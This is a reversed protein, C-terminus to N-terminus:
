RLEFSVENYGKYFVNAVEDRECITHYIRFFFSNDFEQYRLLPVTYFQSKNTIVKIEKNKDGFTFLGETAGLCGRATVIYNVPMDLKVEKGKLYFIEEEKGGNHTKYFLTEREFSEPILTIIGLRISMPYLNKFYLKYVVKLTESFLYEKFISIFPLNIPERHSVKFFGNEFSCLVKVRSSLDTIQEGNQTAILTHFSFFDAGYSIDDYYGHEITGILPKQSKSKFVLERLALGKNKVLIAKHYPTEVIFYRGRHFHKVSFSVTNERSHEEKKSATNQRSTLLSYGMLNRFLLYKEDTTNTRFDSGWLFCLNKWLEKNKDKKIKEYLMYCQTNMKASDRGTVAWRTVNYKDQKKTRIPYGPTSISIVYPDVKLKLIESPLSFTVPFSDGIVRLIDKLRKFDSGGKTFELSGPVYDFIEADGIYLPLSFPSMSIKKKLFSIYDGKDIDGWVFRQFKQTMYTDAWLIKLGENKAVEWLKLNKKWNNDKIANVWDFIFAEFGFEKLIEVAGISYVMENLLFVKPVKRFIEKFIDIGIEVNKKNVEYPILPFIAQTYSSAVLEVKGERELNKIDEIFKLSIGAIKELTWGNFELGIKFGEHALELLPYYVENVIYEYHSEPISSYLLNHHFIIYAPILSKM